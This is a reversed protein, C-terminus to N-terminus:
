GTANSGQIVLGQEGQLLQNSALWANYADQWNTQNQAVSTSQKQVAIAYPDTYQTQYNTNYNQLAQSNPDLYQTQVNTNYGQLANNYVNQYDSQALNQNYQELANATESDNLTGKAAAWNQLGLDGQQVQFQYGPNALADAVSPATFPSPAAAPPVFAPPPTYTPQGPITPLGPPASPPGLTLGGGGGGGGGSPAAPAAPAVPAAPAGSRVYSGSNPDLVYGPPPTSGSTAPISGAAPTTSTQPPTFTNSPPQNAAFPGTAPPIYGPASGIAPTNGIPQLNGNADYTYGPPPTGYQSLPAAM